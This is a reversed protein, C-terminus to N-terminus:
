PSFGLRPITSSLAISQSIPRGIRAAPHLHVFRRAPGERAIQELETDCVVNAALSEVDSTPEKQKGKMPITLNPNLKRVGVGRGVRM